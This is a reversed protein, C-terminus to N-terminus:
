SATDCSAPRTLCKEAFFTSTAYINPLRQASNRPTKSQSIKRITRRGGIFKAARALGMGGSEGVGGGPPFQQLKRGFAPSRPFEYTRIKPWFRAAADGLHQGPRCYFSRLLFAALGRPPTSGYWFVDAFFVRSIRAPSTQRLSRDGEMEAAFREAEV